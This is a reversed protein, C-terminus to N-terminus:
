KRPDLIQRTEGPIGSRAWSLPTIRPGFFYARSLLQGLLCARSRIAEHGDALGMLTEVALLPDGSAGFVVAPRGGFLRQRFIQRFVQAIRPFAQPFGGDFETLLVDVRRMVRDHERALHAVEEDSRLTVAQLDHEKGATGDPRRQDLFGRRGRADSDRVQDVDDV